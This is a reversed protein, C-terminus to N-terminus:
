LRIGTRTAVEHIPKRQTQADLVVVDIPQDGLRMQLKAALQLAKRERDYIPHESQVLLDIDGGRAADDLRSGFLVVVASPGFVEATTDRIIKRQNDTLRM